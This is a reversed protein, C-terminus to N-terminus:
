VGCYLNKIKKEAIRRLRPHMVFYQKGESALQPIRKLKGQKLLLIAESMLEVSLVSSKARLSDITDNKEVSIEKFLVIDGTDIGSDIFYITVGIKHGYFLSWELVNMGRFKPLFGMHANLIGIKPAKIIDEKFFIDAANILVDTKKRKIYEIAACSDLRSFKHFDIKKQRSIESLSLDWGAFQNSQAYEILYYRSDNKGCKQMKYQQLVRRLTSFLGNRRAYNLLTGIRSKETCIVYLSEFCTLLKYALVSASIGINSSAIIGINM